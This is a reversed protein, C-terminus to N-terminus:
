FIAWLILLVVIVALVATQWGKMRRWTNAGGAEPDAPRDHITGAKPDYRTEDYSRAATEPRPAETRPVAGAGTYTTGSTGAAFRASAATPLVTETRHATTSTAATAPRVDGTTPDTVPRADGERITGARPTEGRSVDRHPMTDANRVSANRDAPSRPGSDQPFPADRRDDSM